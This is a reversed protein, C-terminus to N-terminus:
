EEVKKEADEFSLEEGPEEDEQEGNMKHASPTLLDPIPPFHTARYLEGDPDVHMRVEDGARRVEKIIRALKRTLEPLHDPGFVLLAILVIILLETGGIGFMESKEGGTVWPAPCDGTM